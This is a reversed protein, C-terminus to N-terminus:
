NRVGKRVTVKTSKGPESLVLKKHVQVVDEEVTERLTLARGRVEVEENAKVAQVRFRMGFVVRGKSLDAWTRVGGVIGGLLAIKYFRNKTVPNIIELDDKYATGDLLHSVLDMYLLCSLETPTLLWEFEPFRKLLMLATREHWESKVLLKHLAVNKDWATVVKTTCVSTHIGSLGNWDTNSLVGVLKKNFM